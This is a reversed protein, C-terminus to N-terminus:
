EVIQIFAREGVELWWAYGEDSTMFWIDRHDQLVSGGTDACEYTRGTPDGEIVFRQGLHQPACAAAGEHVRDENTMTGCYGGGDGISAANEGPVCYYYTITTEFRDSDESTPPPAAVDPGRRVSVISNVRMHGQRLTNVSEPAGPVYVLWQQSDVHFYSVSEVAFPQAQVLFRPDTTGSVGQTLGGVSPSELVRPTGAVTLPAQPPARRAALTGIRRIVVVDDAELSTLRNVHAPAGPILQLMEQTAIDLHWISVVPYSQAAALAAPDTMGALGFTLGGEPPVPLVGPAESDTPDEIQQVDDPDTTIYYDAVWGTQGEFEAERWTFGDLDQVGDLLTLAAGHEMCVINSADLGPADRMWLCDGGTDVWAPTQAIARAPGGLLAAGLALVLPAALLLHRATGAHLATSMSLSM